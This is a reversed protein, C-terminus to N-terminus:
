SGQQNGFNSLGSTSQPTQGFSTAGGGFLSSQPQTQGFSPTTFASTTGFSSTGATNAGFASGGAPNGFLGSTGSAPFSGPFSAGPAPTNGAFLGGSPQTNGFSFGNGGSGFGTGPTSTAGNGFSTGAGFSNAGPAGFAPTSSASNGFLSSGGTTSKFSNNANNGFLGGSAPQSQGFAPTSSVGGFLGSGAQPASTQPQGFASPQQTQGFAGTAPNNGFLSGGTNNTNGSFGFASQGQGSNQGAATGGGFVSSTNTNGFASGFSSQQGIGQQIPQPVGGSM